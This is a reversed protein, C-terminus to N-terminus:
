LNYHELMQDVVKGRGPKGEINVTHNHTFTPSTVLVDAALNAVLNASEVAYNM